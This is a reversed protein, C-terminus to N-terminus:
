VRGITPFSRDILGNLAKKTEELVLEKLKDELTNFVSLGNHNVNLVHTGELSISTPIKSLSESLTLIPQSLKNILQEFKNLSDANITCELGKGRSPTTSGGPIPGGTARKIPKRSMENSRRGQGFPSKKRIDEDNWMLPTKNSPIPKKYEPFPMNFRSRNRETEFKDLRQMAKDFRLKNDTKTNFLEDKMRDKSYGLQTKGTVGSVRYRPTSKNLENIRDTKQAYGFAKGENISTADSFYSSNRTRGGNKKTFDNVRTYKNYDNQYRDKSPGGGLSDKPRLGALERKQRNGELMEALSRKPAKKFDPNVRQDLRDYEDFADGNHKVSNSEVKEGNVIRNRTALNFRFQERLKASEKAKLKSLDKGQSQAYLALPSQGKQSGVNKSEETLTPDGVLGIGKAGLVVKSGGSLTRQTRVDGSPSGYKGFSETNADGKGAKEDFKGGALHRNRDSYNGYQNGPREEPYMRYYSESKVKSVAKDLPVVNKSTDFPNTGFPGENKPLNTDVNDLLNNYTSGPLMSALEDEYEPSALVLGGKAFKKRTRIFRRPTGKTVSEVLENITSKDTARYKENKGSNRIRQIEKEYQLQKNLKSFEDADQRRASANGVNLRGYDNAVRYNSSKSQQFQSNYDRGRNDINKGFSVGRYGPRFGSIPSSKPKDEGALSGSIGLSSRRDANEQLKKQLDFKQIGLRKNEAEQRERVFKENHIKQEAKSLSKSDNGGHGHLSIAGSATSDIFTPRSSDPAISGGKYKGFSKPSLTPDLTEGRLHARKREAESLGVEGGVAYNNLKNLTDSGLAEAASKKIVFEGPTLMAPVTDSNGSGPIYGGVAKEIFEVSQPGVFQSSKQGLQVSVRDLQERFFSVSSNVKDIEINLKPLSTDGLAAFGTNLLTIKSLLIASDKDSVNLKKLGAKNELIDKETNKKLPNLKSELLDNLTTNIIEGSITGKFGQAPNNQYLALKLADSFEDSIKGTEEPSFIDSLRNSAEGVFKDLDKLRFDQKPQAITLGSESINDISRIKDKGSKISNILPLALRLESTDQDTLEKFRTGGLLNQLKDATSKLEQLKGLKNKDQGLRLSLDQERNSLFLDRLNSIFLPFQKNISDTLLKQQNVNDKILQNNADQAKQLLGERDAKLKKEDDGQTIQKKISEFAEPTTFQKISNLSLERKFEEITKGNGLKTDPAFRDLNAKVANLLQPPIGGLSGTKFVESTAAFGRAQERRTAPDAFAFDELIGQKAERLSKARAIEEDLKAVRNTADAMFKLAATTRAITDLEKDKANELKLLDQNAGKNIENEIDKLKARSQTLRTGLQEPTRQANANGAIARLRQLDFGRSQELSLSGNSTRGIAAKEAIDVNASVLETQQSRLQQVKALTSEILKLEQTRLKISESLVDGVGKRLNDLIPDVVNKLNGGAIEKALDSNKVKDSLATIIADGIFFAQENNGTLEKIREGIVQIADGGQLELAGQKFVDNLITPLKLGIENILNSENIFEKGGELGGLLGSAQTNARGLLKQDQIQGLRSFVASLDTVGGSLVADFENISETLDSFSNLLGTTMIARNDERLSAESIQKNVKNLKQSSEIIDRFKNNLDRLSTDTFRSVFQSLSRTQQSFEEFSNSSSALKSLFENVNAALNESRDRQEKSSGSKVFEESQENVTARAVQIQSIAGIKNNPDKILELAKNFKKLSEDLKLNRLAENIRKNENYFAYLGGAAAGVAAGIPGAVALGIAGGQAAGGLTTGALLGAQAGGSKPNRDFAKDGLESFISGVGGAVAVAGTLNGELKARQALASKTRRGAVAKDNFLQNQTRLDIQEKRSVLGERLEAELKKTENFQTILDKLGKADRGEGAKLSRIKKSLEKKRAKAQSLQSGKDLLDSNGTKGLIAAIQDDNQQRLDSLIAPHPVNGANLFNFQKELEVERGSKEGKGNPSKFSRKGANKFRERQIELALRRKISETNESGTNLLKDNVSQLTKVKKLDNQQEESLKGTNLFANVSSLEAERRERISTRKGIRRQVENIDSSIQQGAKNAQSASIRRNKQETFKASDEQLKASEKATRGFTGLITTLLVFQTATTSLGKTFASLGEGLGEKFESAASTLASILLTAQIPNSQVKDTVAGVFGGAAYGTPKEGRRLAEWFGKPHKSVKDRPIVFEGPELMAPVKDGRGSGPVNGGTAYGKFDNGSIRDLIYPRRPTEGTKVQELFNRLSRRLGKRNQKGAFVNAIEEHSLGQLTFALSEEPRSIYEGFNTQDSRNGLKKNGLNLRQSLRTSLKSLNQSIDYLKSGPQSSAFYAGRATTADFNHVIEHNITRKQRIPSLKGLEKLNLRVGSIGGEGLRDNDLTQHYNISHNSNLKENISDSLTDGYNKYKQLQRNRGSLGPRVMDNYDLDISAPVTKSRSTQFSFDKLLSDLRIQEGSKKKKDIIRKFLKGYPGDFSTDLEESSRGNKLNYNGTLYERGLDNKKGRTQGFYISSVKDYIRKVQGGDAFKQVKDKPVVLEGPTLMAHVSDTNGSGPVIGGKALKVKPTFQKKIGSKLQELGSKGGGPVAQVFNSLSLAALAPILPGVARGMQIFGETINLVIKGFKQFEDSNFGDQILKLFEERTKALQNALSEQAIEADRTLSNAGQTATILAREAKEIQELLPIVKSQQRIGGIEEIIQSFRIDRKDLGKVARSIAQIQEFPKKLLGSQDKLDIGFAELTTITQPRRLRAFITRFGTAITDASERTTSRVATFLALLENLKQKPTDTAKGLTSFAGGTKQIATTLDQAEVAYRASLVNISGLVQETDKSSIQFQEQAAILANVTDTIDGFTAALRTKALAGLSDKIEQISRGAQGLTLGVSLLEKSYVGLERSVKFVEKGLSQISSKSDRTVQQVKLLEVNFSSADKIASTLASGLAFFGTTAVTFAAFRKGALAAKNAFDEFGTEASKTAKRIKGLEGSMTRLSTLDTKVTIFLPKSALSEIDLRAQRTVAQVDLLASLKVAM